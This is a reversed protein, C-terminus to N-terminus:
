RDCLGFRQRNLVLFEMNGLLLARGDMSWFGDCRVLRVGCLSVPECEGMREAGLYERGRGMVVLPISWMCSLGIYFISRQYEPLRRGSSVRWGDGSRIRM